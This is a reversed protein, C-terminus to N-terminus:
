SANGCLPIVYGRACTTRPRWRARLSRQFAAGARQRALGALVREIQPRAQGLTLRKAPSRGVVRFVAWGNVTKVPGELRGARARFAVDDFAANLPNRLVHLRGGTRRSRPDMSFRGVVAAFPVGREIAARAALGDRRTRAFVGLVDRAPPRTLQSSHRRYYAGVASAPPRPPATRQLLADALANTRAVAKLQSATLGTTRVAHARAAVAESTVAIGRAKAEAAIWRSTILFALVQERLVARRTHRSQGIASRMWGAVEARTLRQDGVRVAPSGAHGACGAVLCTVVLPALRKIPM